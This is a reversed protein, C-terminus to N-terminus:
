DYVSCGVDRVELIQESVLTIYMLTAIDAPMNGQDVASCKVILIQGAKTSTGTWSSEPVKEFSMGFIFKNTCYQRFDIGIAHLHDDPLNLTQKLITFCESISRVPYEPYLKSGLQIQFELDLTPVYISSIVESMPHYLKIAQKDIITPTTPTKYFSLFCKQLRSVARAVQISFSKGSVSSQQNIFTSYKIPLAKGALLHATYENNLQNDLTCCDAKICANEIQWNTSTNTTTFTASADGPGNKLGPTIIPDLSSNVLELELIIPAYKVPLLKPQMVLGLFPKFAVTMSSGYLVGPMTDITWVNNGYKNQKDDWRYGFGEIDINDRVNDPMLSFFQEHVRNYDLIDEALQNGVMVRARRFFLHPGGLLRLDKYQTTENNRLAFQIRITSPDLWTGDDGNLLFRLVKTGSEPKYVNSGSAWFTCKRRDTIYSSGPPLKFSLGEILQDEVGNSISEM